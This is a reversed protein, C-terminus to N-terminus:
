LDDIQATTSEVIPSITTMLTISGGDLGQELGQVLSLASDLPDEWSVTVALRKFDSRAAGAPPSTGFQGSAHDLYYDEVRQSIVFEVGAMTTAMEGDVIDEYAAALGAPDTELRTFRRQTEIAAEALSSALTTVRDVTGAGPLGARAQSYALAGGAFLATAVIWEVLNFRPQRASARVETNRHRSPM